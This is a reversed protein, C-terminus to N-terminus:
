FEEPGPGPLANRRDAEDAAMLLGVARARSEDPEIRNTTSGPHVYWEGGSRWWRVSPDAEVDGEPGLVQFRVEPSIRSSANSEDRVIRWGEPLLDTPVM